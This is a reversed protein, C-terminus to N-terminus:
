ILHILLHFDRAIKYPKKDAQDQQQEKEEKIKEQDLLFIKANEKELNSYTGKELQFM